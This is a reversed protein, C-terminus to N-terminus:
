VLIMVSYWCLCYLNGSALTWQPINREVSAPWVCCVFLWCTEDFINYNIQLYSYIYSGRRRRKHNPNKWQKKSSTLLRTAFVFRVGFVLVCCMLMVFWYPIWVNFIFNQFTFTKACFLFSKLNCNLIVFWLSPFSLLSTDMTRTTPSLVGGSSYLLHWIHSICMSM